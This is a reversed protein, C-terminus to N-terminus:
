VSMGCIYTKEIASQGPTVVDERMEWLDFSFMTIEEDGSGGPEWPRFRRFSSCVGRRYLNIRPIPPLDPMNSNM